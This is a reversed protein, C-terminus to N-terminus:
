SVLDTRRHRPIVAKTHRDTVMKLKWVLTLGEPHPTSPPLDTPAIQTISPHLTFTIASTPTLSPDPTYFPDSSAFTHPFSTTIKTNIQNKPNPQSAPLCQCLYAPLVKPHKPHSLNQTRRCLFLLPITLTQSQWVTM